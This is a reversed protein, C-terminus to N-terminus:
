IWQPLISLMHTINYYHTAPNACLYLPYSTNVVTVLIKCQFFRWHRCFISSRENEVRHIAKVLSYMLKCAYQFIFHRESATHTGQVIIEVVNSQSRYVLKERQRGGCLTVPTRLGKERISAYAVCLADSPTNETPDLSVVSYDLLTIHITKGPPATLLWPARYTGCPTEQSAVSPILGSPGTLEVASTCEQPDVSIM